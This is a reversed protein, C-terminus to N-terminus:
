GAYRALIKERKNPQINALMVDGDYHELVRHDMVRRWLPPISALVIMGAYGTPLQPAEEFHRLAQYRRTPFAHHDSHRELHYLFVNSGVHNSNWSNGPQCREYGGDTKQQRLLGYHEIYNVVELLGFGFVAQLVLFPVVRWGFGITLAGFLAVTLMWGTLLDNSFSWVRKSQSRLRTTELGWASRFGGLVTRPLFMWFSEGLRSSAPDEPTAVRVHHGRNHEVFFHTYASPALVLRALRREVKDTKHGLEHANNIGIGSVVGVTLALGFAEFWNLHQTTFLWAGLILSAYELPFYLYTCWRYYRDNELQAVAWDPANSRDTGFVWDVLPILGFVWALGTWWFIGMGTNKVNSWAAFTLLPVTLGLLWYYRKADKWRRVTETPMTIASM